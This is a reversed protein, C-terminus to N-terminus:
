RTVNDGGARFGISKRNNTLMENQCHSVLADLDPENGSIISDITCKRAINEIQGGSFDFRQRFSRFILIKWALNVIGNV